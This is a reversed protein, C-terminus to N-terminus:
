QSLFRSEFSATSTSDEMSFMEVDKRLKHEREKYTECMLKVRELCAKESEQSRPDVSVVDLFWDAPNFHSPCNLNLPASCFFIELCFGFQFMQAMGFYHKEYSESEDLKGETFYKLSYAPSAIGNYLVNGESLLILLDFMRYISSRPQHISCAVTRGTAALDRLISM